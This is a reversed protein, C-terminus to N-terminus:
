TYPYVYNSLCVYLVCYPLSFLSLFSFSSRCPFLPISSGFSSLSLSPSTSVPSYQRPLLSQQKSPNLDFPCIHLRFHLGELCCFDGSKGTGISRQLKIRTGDSHGGTLCSSTLLGHLPCRFQYASLSLYRQASSQSALRSPSPSLM